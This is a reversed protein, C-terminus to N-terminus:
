KFIRKIKELGEILADIDSQQNYLALSIRTTAPVNYFDMVPMACHHGARVAIGEDDLLTAIDHPHIGSLTFAIVSTRDTANGIFHLHAVNALRAHTYEFLAHEFAAITKLGITNVYQLAAGLGIAGAIHPTGAEFKQPPAQFYTGKEFSVQSIMDGGGHYPPLKELWPQKAYLVGIGTPGYIKHGSFCYFDCDLAQVDVAIHSIAQAGDILVPINSQHALEIILQIPNITGLANSVHTVTILKTKPSILAPLESLLLEGSENFDLVKLIIGYQTQLLQWPVINSHHEMRTVIIEDGPQLYTKGFTQAILNIAETTGRVFVIEERHAANIFEKVTDRSKEYAITARESLTHVGRHVNAHDQEYYHKIADIVVQPKQNSAANDLYVLPHGHISQKLIPFDKRWPSTTIDPM